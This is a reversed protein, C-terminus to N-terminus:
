HEIRLDNTVHFVQPVTNAEIGAVKKDYEDAVVGKLTVDGNDVIIHIPPVAQIAYREFGIGSYIAYFERRRIINDYRSLPLIEINNIVKNVGKIQKVAYEADDKLYAWVVQGSLVVTGDEKLQFELNDFITYYPLMILEHRIQRELQSEPAQKKQQQQQTAGTQDAAFAPASLGLLMAPVILMGFRKAFKKFRNM